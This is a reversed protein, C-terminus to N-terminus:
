IKANYGSCWGKAAVSKGPFLQCAATATKDTGAFFQCNACSQTAKHAPFKAADVKSADDKYGLAQATPDSETVPPLEDARVRRPSVLAIAGATATVGMATILFRRRSDFPVSSM